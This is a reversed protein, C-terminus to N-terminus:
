RLGCIKTAKKIKQAVFQTAPFRWRRAMILADSDAVCDLPMWCKQREGRHHHPGAPLMLRYADHDPDRKRRTWAAQAVCVGTQWLLPQHYLARIWRKARGAQRSSSAGTVCRGSSAAAEHRILGLSDPSRAAQRARGARVGHTRRGARDTVGRDQLRAFQGRRRRKAANRM